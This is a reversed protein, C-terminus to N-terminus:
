SASHESLYEEPNIPKGNQTLELHLHIGDKKEGSIEDVTGIVDGASMHSGIKLGEDAKVGCYTAVTGDNNEAIIIGGMLEDTKIQKITGSTIMHVSAGKESKYDTGSHTRFDGFTASKVPTGGSYAKLVDKSTPYFYSDGDEEADTAAEEEADTTPPLPEEIQNAVRATEPETQPETAAQTQIREEDGASPETAVVSPQMYDSVSSYASWVAGIMALMCLSFIVYFGRNNKRRAGGKNKNELEPEKKDM